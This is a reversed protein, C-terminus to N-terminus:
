HESSITIVLGTQWQGTALENSRLRESVSLQEDPRSNGERIPALPENGHVCSGV